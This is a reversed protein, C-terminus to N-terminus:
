SFEWLSAYSATKLRQDQSASQCGIILICVLKKFGGTLGFSLKTKLVYESLLTEHPHLHVFQHEEEELIVTMTHNREKSGFVLWLDKGNQFTGDEKEREIRVSERKETSNFAARCEDENSM